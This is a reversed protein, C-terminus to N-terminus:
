SFRATSLAKSRITGTKAGASKRGQLLSSGLKDGFGWRWASAQAPIKVRGSVSGQLGGPNLWSSV